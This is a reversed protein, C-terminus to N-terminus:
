LVGTLKVLDFPAFYDVARAIYTGAVADVRNIRYLINGQSSFIINYLCATLVPAGAAESTELNQKIIEVMQKGRELGKAFGSALGFAMKKDVWAQFEVEDLQGWLLEGGEQFSIGREDFHFNTLWDRLSPEYLSLDPPPLHEIGAASDRELRERKVQILDQQVQYTVSDSGKKLEITDGHSLARGGVVPEGNVLTEGRTPVLLAWGDKLMLLATAPRFVGPVELKAPKEDVLWENKFAFRKDGDLRILM